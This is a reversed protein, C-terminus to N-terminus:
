KSCTGVRAAPALSLVGVSLRGLSFNRGCFLVGTDTGANAGFGPSSAEPLCGISADLRVIQLMFGSHPSQIDGYHM